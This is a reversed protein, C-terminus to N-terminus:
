SREWAEGAGPMSAYGFVGGTGPVWGYGFVGGDGSGPCVCGCAVAGGDAVALRLGDGLRQASGQSWEGGTGWGSDYVEM